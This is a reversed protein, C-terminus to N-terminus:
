GSFSEDLLLVKPDLALARAIELKRLNGLPLTGSIRDAQDQLGVTELIEQGRRRIKPRDWRGYAGPFVSYRDHGLAVCVNDLVTLGAFPHVIQFTRGMGLNAIRHPPLGHIPRGELLIEGSSPAYVGSIMNFCTTKGAGNPGLLGLIDGAALDFSVDEVAKLGGFHITLNKVSLLADM